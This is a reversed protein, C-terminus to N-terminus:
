SEHELSNPWEPQSSGVRSVKLAQSIKTEVESVTLGSCVVVIGDAYCILKVGPPRAIKVIDSFALNWLTPRLISGQLVGYSIMRSVTGTTTEVVIKRDDLYSAVIRVLYGPM